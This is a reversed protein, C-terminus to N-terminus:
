SIDTDAYHREMAQWGLGRQSTIYALCAQTQAEISGFSQGPDDNSSLRAYVACRM